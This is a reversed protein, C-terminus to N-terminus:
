RGTRNEPDVEYKLEFAFTEAKDDTFAVIDIEKKVLSAPDLGFYFQVKYTGGVASRLFFGLEHQLSIENYIDCRGDKIQTIFSEILKNFDNM